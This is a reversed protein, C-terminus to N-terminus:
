PDPGRRTGAPVARRARGQPTWPLFPELEAGAPATGGAQACATLYDELLPLPEPGNQAATATITWVDAGLDAAWRAGSGYFSKRGRSPMVTAGDVTQCIRLSASMLGAGRRSPGPQASNRRDLRLLDQRQVEEGGAQKVARLDADQGHNLV